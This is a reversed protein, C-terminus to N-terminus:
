PTESPELDTHGAPYGMLWEVWTPNLAGGAVVNLAQTNRMLQSPAANNKSDNVTPTPWLKVAGALNPEQSQGHARTKTMRPYANRKNAEM